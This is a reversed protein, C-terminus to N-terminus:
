ASVSARVGITAPVTLAHHVDQAAVQTGVTLRIGESCVALRRRVLGPRAVGVLGHFGGDNSDHAVMKEFSSFVVVSFDAHLLDYTIVLQPAVAREVEMSNSKVLAHVEHFTGEFAVRVKASRNEFAVHVEAFSVEIDNVKALSREFAIRIETSGGEFAMRVEISGDEIVKRIEAPGGEFTEGM